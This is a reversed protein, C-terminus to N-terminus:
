AWHKYLIQGTMRSLSIPLMRFIRNHWGSAEDQEIVFRNRRLDFKVYDIKKEVAGWAVKFRRLGENALSTRGLNLQTASNQMLWRIATWMVLNNARLHQQSEDSAGFKYIARGGLYFYVAAAIARGRHRALVIMGRNQSLIHRHINMFFSFPQPPLGHKKRTQCQLSYFERVSKEDQLVEAVVGEKEAKRIARRVSGDLREFLKEAGAVLNLEHGYFSVSAPAESLFIKGGRLEVYKWGRKKGFDIAADFLKQFSNKDSVLPECEDTFPLAIGRTGTLWSKVEMLPLLSEPLNPEGSFFYQPVYGYTEALVKAWAAGHFFTFDPQRSIRADWDSIELPNLRQAAFFETAV